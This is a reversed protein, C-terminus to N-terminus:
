WSRGARWPRMWTRSWFTRRRRTCLSTLGPVRVEGFAQGQPLMGMMEDWPYSAPLKLSPTHASKAKNSCM